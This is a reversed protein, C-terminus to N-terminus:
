NVAKLDPVKVSHGTNGAIADQLAKSSAVRSGVAYLYMRQWARVRDNLRFERETLRIYEPGAVLVEWLIAGLFLGVVTGSFFMITQM